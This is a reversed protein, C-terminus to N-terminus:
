FSSDNLFIIDKAKEPGQNNVKDTKQRKYFLIATIMVIATVM